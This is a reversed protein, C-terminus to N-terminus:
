QGEYTAGTNSTSDSFLDPDLNDGEDHIQITEEVLTFPVLELGGRRYFFERSDPHYGPKFVEIEYDTRRALRIREGDDDRLYDIRFQGERDTVMEVNGPSLSVIARDVPEGNRDTVTGTIHHRSALAAAPSLLLAISFALRIM